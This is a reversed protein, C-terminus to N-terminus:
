ETEAEWAQLPPGGRNYATEDIVALYDFDTFSQATLPFYTPNKQSGSRIPLTAIESAALRKGQYTPIFRIPGPTATLQAELTGAEPTGIGNDDSTGLATGIVAYRKGLMEHLQSGAPWWTILEHGLQWQAKGKKLHSNHAFAFVKGREQERSVIYLLNDAQLMDRIGLREAYTTTKAMSAHFDLLGRAVRAYQLAESFRDRGTQAILEPRRIELEEEPELNCKSGM